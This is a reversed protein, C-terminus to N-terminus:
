EVKTVKIGGPLNVGLKGATTENWFITVEDPEEVPQNAGMMKVKLFLNAAQIGQDQYEVSIASLCRNKAVHSLTLGIQAPLQDANQTFFSRNEEALVVRDEIWILVDIQHIDRMKNFVIPVDGPSSVVETVLSVNAVPAAKQFNEVLEAKDISHIIGFKDYEPLLSRLKRIQGMPSVNMTVGTTKGSPNEWSDVLGNKVPDTLLLFIKTNDKFQSYLPGEPLLVVKAAAIGVLFIVEIDSSKYEKVGDLGQERLSYKEIDNKSVGSQILQKELSESAEYHPRLNKGILILHTGGALANTLPFIVLCIMIVIKLRKM